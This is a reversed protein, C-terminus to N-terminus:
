TPRLGRCVLRTLPLLLLGQFAQEMDMSTWLIPITMPLMMDMIIMSLATIMMMSVMILFKM